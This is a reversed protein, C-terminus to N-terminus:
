ATLTNICLIINFNLYCNNIYIVLLRGFVIWLNIWHTETGRPYVRIWLVLLLLLIIHHKNILIWYGVYVQGPTLGIPM